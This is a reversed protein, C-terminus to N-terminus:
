EMYIIVHIILAFAIGLTHCGNASWKQRLNLDMTRVFDPFGNIIKNLPNKLSLHIYEVILCPYSNLQIRELSQSNNM